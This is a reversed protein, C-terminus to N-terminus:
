ATPVIRGREQLSSLREGPHLGDPVAGREEVQGYEVDERRPVLPNM